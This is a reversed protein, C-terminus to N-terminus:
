RIPRAYYAAADTRLASFLEGLFKWEEEESKGAFDGGVTGALYGLWRIIASERVFGTTTRSITAPGGDNDRIVLRFITGEKEFPRSLSANMLKAAGTPLHWKPSRAFRLNWGHEHSTGVMTLDAFLRTMGVTFMGVKAFADIELVLEEPMPRAAGIFPILHGGQARMRFQLANHRMDAFFWTAGSKDRLQLRLVASSVYKDFFTAFAPYQTRIGDPHTRVVLVIAHSGDGLPTSHLSDISFLRGAAAATLPFDAGLEGRLEPESKGAAGAIMAGVMDAFEASRVAGIAFDVRSDWQWDKDGAPRLLIRHRADGPGTIPPIPTRDLMQYSGRALRAFVEIVETSDERHNWIATDPYAISPSLWARTIHLKAYKYKPSRMPNVYRDSLATFAQDAHEAREADTSGLKDLAPRCAIVGAGALMALAACIVRAPRAVVPLLTM